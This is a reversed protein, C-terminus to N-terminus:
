RNSGLATLPDAKTVSRLAVAAGALGLVAMLAAPAVTTLASVAFPLAQGALSGVVVTVLLGTGIGAVLVVAAQGLSDRILSGTTAGLAKLVAIDGRRQLTWVTFFAGVVLASIGFLLVIMVALSGIESTFSALATLSTLPTKAVTNTQKGTTEWDPTGSVALATPAGDGGTGRDIEAWTEESLVVVPVHSYWLDGEVVGVTLQKGAVTVTEGTTVGLEDAAPASLGVHGDDAPTIKTLDTAKGDGADPLGFAAVASSSDAPSSDSPSEDQQAAGARTTTIGIPLASDVGEAQNWAQLQDTTIASTAYAPEEGEAQELVVRDGPIQLVASINRQALGGTLGSLFGVLVTILGVVGAILLFRGRAFRLERWAVFM